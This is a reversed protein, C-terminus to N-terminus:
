NFLSRFLHMCISPIDKTIFSYVVYIALPLTLVVIIINFATIPEEKASSKKSILRWIFYLALPTAFTSLFVALASTKEEKM